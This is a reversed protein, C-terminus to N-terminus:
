LLHFQLYDYIESIRSGREAMISNIHSIIVDLDEDPTDFIFDYQNIIVEGKKYSVLEYIKNHIMTIESLFGKTIKRNIGYGRPEHKITGGNGQITKNCLYRKAGHVNTKFTKRSVRNM